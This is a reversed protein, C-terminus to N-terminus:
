FSKGADECGLGYLRGGLIRLMADRGIGGRPGGCWVLDSCLLPRLHYARSSGLRTFCCRSPGVVGGAVLGIPSVRRWWTGASDLRVVPRQRFQPNRIRGHGGARLLGSANRINDTVEPGNGPLLTVGM